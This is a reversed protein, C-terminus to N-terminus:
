GNYKEIQEREMEAGLIQLYNSPSIVRTDKSQRFVLTNSPEACM